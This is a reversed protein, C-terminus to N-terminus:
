AQRYTRRFRRDATSLADARDHAHERRLPNELGPWAISAPHCGTGGSGIGMVERTSSQERGQPIESAPQNRSSPQGQVLGSRDRFDEDSVIIRLVHLQEFRIEAIEV